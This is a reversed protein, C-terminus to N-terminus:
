KGAAQPNGNAGGRRSEPIAYKIARALAEQTEKSIVHQHEVTGGLEGEIEVTQPARGYIQDQIWALALGDPPKQAVSIIKKTLPNVVPIWVGLALKLQAEWLKKQNKRMFDIFGAQMALREKAKLSLSGKPRGAGPRAGGKAM